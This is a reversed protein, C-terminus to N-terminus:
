RISPAQGALALAPKKNLIVIGNWSGGDLATSPIVCSRESCVFVFVGSGREADPAQTM